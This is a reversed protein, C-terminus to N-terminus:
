LPHQLNQLPLHPVAPQAVHVGQEDAGSGFPRRFFANVEEGTVHGQVVNLIDRAKEPPEV